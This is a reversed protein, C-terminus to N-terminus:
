DEVIVLRPLSPLASSPYKDIEGLAVADQSYVLCLRLLPRIGAGALAENKRRTSM